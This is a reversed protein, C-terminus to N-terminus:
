QRKSNFLQEIIHGINKEEGKAAAENFVELLEQLNIVCGHENGTKKGITKLITRRNEFSEENKVLFAYFVKKDRDEPLIFKRFVAKKDTLDGTMKDISIDPNDDFAGEVSIYAVFGNENVVVDPGLSGGFMECRVGVSRIMDTFWARFLEVKNQKSYKIIKKRDALDFLILHRRGIMPFEERKLDKEIFHEPKEVRIEGLPADTMLDVKHPIYNRDKGPEGATEINLGGRVLDEIVDDIIQERENVGFGEAYKGIAEPTLCGKTLAQLVVFRRYNLYGVGPYLANEKFCPLTTPLEQVFGYIVKGADTLEYGPVKAKHDKIGDNHSLTMEIERIWKIKLMWDLCMELSMGLYSFTDKKVKFDFKGGKEEIKAPIVWEPWTLNDISGEAAYNNMLYYISVPSSSHYLIETIRSVEPAQCLGEFIKVVLLPGFIYEWEKRDTNIRSRGIEFLAAIEAGLKTLSVFGGTDVKLFGTGLMMWIDGHIKLNPIFPRRIVCNEGTNRNKTIIPKNGEEIMQFLSVLDTTGAENVYILNLPIKLFRKNYVIGNLMDIAHDTKAILGKDCKGEEAAKRIKEKMSKLISSDVSFEPKGPFPKAMHGPGPTLADKMKEYLDPDIQSHELCFPLTSMAFKVHLPSGVCFVNFIPGIRKEIMHFIDKRLSYLSDTLDEWGKGRRTDPKIKMPTNRGM